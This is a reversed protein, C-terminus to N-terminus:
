NTPHRHTSQFCPLGPQASGWGAQAFGGGSLLISGALTIDALRPARQVLSCPPLLQPVCAQLPVTPLALLSAHHQHALIRRQGARNTVVDDRGMDEPEIASL